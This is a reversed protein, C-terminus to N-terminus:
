NLLHIVSCLIQFLFMRILHIALMFCTLYGGISIYFCTGSYRSIQSIYMCLQQFAKIQWLTFELNKFIPVKRPVKRIVIM